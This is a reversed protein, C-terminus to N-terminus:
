RSLSYFFDEEVTPSHRAVSIPRHGALRSWPHQHSEDLWLATNAHSARMVCFFFRRSLSSFGSESRKCGSERADYGSDVFDFIKSKKQFIKFFLFVVLFSGFDSFQSFIFYIKSRAAPCLSLLFFFYYRNQNQGFHNSGLSLALSARWRGYCVCVMQVCM